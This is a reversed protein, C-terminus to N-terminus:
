RTSLNQLTHDVTQCVVLLRHCAGGENDSGTWEEVLKDAFELRQFLNMCVQERIEQNPIENVWQRSEMDFADVPYLM